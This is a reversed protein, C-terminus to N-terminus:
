QIEVRLVSGRLMMLSAAFLNQLKRTCIFPFSRPNYLFERQM